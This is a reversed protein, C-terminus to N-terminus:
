DSGGQERVSAQFGRLEDIVEQRLRGIDDYRTEARLANALAILRAGAAILPNPGTAQIPATSVARGPAEEPERLRAPRSSPRASPPAFPNDTAPGFEGVLTPDEDGGRRVSGAAPRIVTREGEDEDFSFPDRPPPSM